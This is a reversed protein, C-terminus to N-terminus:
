ARVRAAEPDTPRDARVGFLLEVYKRFHEIPM